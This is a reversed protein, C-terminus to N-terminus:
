PVLAVRGRIGGAGDFEFDGRGLDDLRAIDDPDAGLYRLTDEASPRSVLAWTRDSRRPGETTMEIPM